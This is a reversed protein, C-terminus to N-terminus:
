AKSANISRCQASAGFLADPQTRQWAHSERSAQLRADFGAPTLMVGDLLGISTALPSLPLARGPFTIWHCPEHPFLTTDQNREYHSWFSGLARDFASPLWEDLGFTM